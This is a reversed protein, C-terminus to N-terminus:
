SHTQAYLDLVQHILRYQEATQVLAGRALRLCCVIALVDVNRNSRLQRLGNLVALFCGTRGVGASCHVVTECVPLNESQTKDIDVVKDETEFTFRNNKDNSTNDVNIINNKEDFAFKTQNSNYKFMNSVSQSRLSETSSNNKDFFTKNDHKINNLKNEFGFQDSSFMNNVSQSINLNNKDNNGVFKVNNLKEKADFTYQNYKFMNSVSQSRVNEVNSYSTQKVNIDGVHTTQKEVSDSNTLNHQIDALPFHKQKDM